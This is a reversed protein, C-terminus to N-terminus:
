SKKLIEKRGKHYEARGKRYEERGKRYAEKGKQYEVQGKQWENGWWPNLGWQNGVVIREGVQIRHPNSIRPNLAMLQRVTTNYQMAIIQLSDGSQVIYYMVFVREKGFKDMSM